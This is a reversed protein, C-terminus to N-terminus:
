AACIGYTPLLDHNVYFRHAQIADHFRKWDSKLFSKNYSHVAMDMSTGLAKHKWSHKGRAHYQVTESGFSFRGEKVAKLWERHRKEGDADKLGLFLSRITKMDGPPVPAVDADPDGAQYQQMAKFMARAADCFSKTNNRLILAGNGNRYEWELFPMDPLTMARGHGLPPLADDLLDHLFRKLGGAFVGSNSIERAHEVENIKDLVGAFGQHAWTDAYVHMVVGFRHLGYAKDRERIANRVMQRAVPSNPTCVIKNIFNGALNRGAGKGGNGPLFHFPIWVVHNAVAKTNRLDLMGHASSIRQYQARNDFHVTGSSTADDVYQAAYAIKGADGRNFGALRALVYTTAHHFDIQM